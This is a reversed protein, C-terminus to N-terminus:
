CYSLQAVTQGCYVHSLLQPTHTGKSPPAPDGDVAIHRQSLGVVTGLPMKIWGATQGFYVHSLFHPSYGKELPFSPAWRVCHPRRRPRDGYWTAAQEM